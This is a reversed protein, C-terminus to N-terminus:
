GLIRAVDRRAAVLKACIIIRMQGPRGRDILRGAAGPPRSTLGHGANRLCRRAPLRWVYRMRIGDSL